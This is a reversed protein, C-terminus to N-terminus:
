SSIRKCCELLEAKLYALCRPNPCSRNEEREIADGLCELRRLRESGLRCELIEIELAEKKEIVAREKEFVAKENEFAARDKELAARQRELHVQEGHEIASDKLYEQLPGMFNEMSRKMRTSADGIVRTVLDELERERRRKRRKGTFAEDREKKNAKVEERRLADRDTLLDSLGPTDGRSGVEDQGSDDHVELTCHQGEGSYKSLAVVLYKLDTDDATTPLSVPSVPLSHPHPPIPSGNGRNGRM